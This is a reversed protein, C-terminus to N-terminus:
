CCIKQITVHLLIHIRLYQLRRLQVVNTWLIRQSLLFLMVLLPIVGTVTM